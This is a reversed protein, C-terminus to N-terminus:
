PSARAAAPPKISRPMREPSRIAIMSGVLRSKKTANKAM